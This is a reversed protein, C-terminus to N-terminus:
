AHVLVQSAAEFEEITMSVLEDCGRRGCECDFPYCIRSSTM